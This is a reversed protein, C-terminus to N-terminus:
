WNDTLVDICKMGDKNTYEEFGWIPMKDTYSDEDLSTITNSKWKFKGVFGIPDPIFESISRIDHIQVVDYDKDKFFENFTLPNDLYTFNSYRPNHKVRNSVM